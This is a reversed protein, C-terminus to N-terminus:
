EIRHLLQRSKGYYRQLNNIFTEASVRTDMSLMTTVAVRREKRAASESKMVRAVLEDNKGASPGQFPVRLPV